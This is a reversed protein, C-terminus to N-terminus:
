LVSAVDIPNGCKRAHQSAAPERRSRIRNRVAGARVIVAREPRAPCQSQCAGCGRCLNENVVPCNVGGHVVTEVAQYPCFEQCVMCCKGSSWALCVSKDVEAVGMVIDRKANLELEAVAGTPCVKGCENCWENCYRRSFDLKPTLLGALGSEGCDAVIIGEPCSRFCNGCRACILVFQSEEVSGPPRVPSSLRRMGHFRWTAGVACGGALLLFHRRSVPWSWEARNAPTAPLCPNQRIKAANVLFSGANGSLEFMAGLPCIRGCWAGPAVISLILILGFGVALFFERREPTGVGFVGFFGNFLVLPDLWMFFPAGFLAGGFGFVLAWRGIRPMRSWINGGRPNLKGTLRFLFGAPCVHSCFWRGKFFGLSLLPLGLLAPLTVRRLAIASFLSVLPSIAMWVALGHIRLGRVAVAVSLAFIIVRAIAAWRIKEVKHDIKGAKM